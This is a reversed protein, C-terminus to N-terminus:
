ANRRPGDDADASAHKVTRSSTLTVAVQSSHIPLERQPSRPSPHENKRARVIEIINAAVVSPDEHEWYRLPRWGANLLKRDTDEDRTRNRQRKEAWYTSNATPARGSHEPCGHWFCGDIFVAVKTPGLVIDARRRLGKLPSADVRYRLGSRHLLRRIVLEPATDRTKQRQMRGRVAESSAWSGGEPAPRAVRKASAPRGTRRNARAKPDQGM